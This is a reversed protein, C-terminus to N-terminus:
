FNGTRKGTLLNDVIQQSRGNALQGGHNDIPWHIVYAKTDSSIIGISIAEEIARKFFAEPSYLESGFDVVEGDKKARDQGHGGVTEIVIRFDGM